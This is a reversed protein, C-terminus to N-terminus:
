SSMCSSNGNPARQSRASGGNGKAALVELPMVDPAQTLLADVNAFLAGAVKGQLHADM